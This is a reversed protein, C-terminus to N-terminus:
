ELFSELAQELQPMHTSSRWVLSPIPPSSLNQVFSNESIDDIESIVNSMRVFHHTHYCKRYEVDYSGGERVVISFGSSDFM